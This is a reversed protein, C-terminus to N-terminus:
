LSKIVSPFYLHRVLHLPLPPCHSCWIIPCPASLTVAPSRKPTATPGVVGEARPYSLWLMGWKGWEPGLGTKGESVWSVDSNDGDGGRILPARPSGQPAPYPSLSREPVFCM